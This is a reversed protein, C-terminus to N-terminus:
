EVSVRYYHFNFVLIRQGLETTVLLINGNPSLWSVPAYCWAFVM